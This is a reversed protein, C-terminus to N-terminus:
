RVLYKLRNLSGDLQNAQWVFSSHWNLMTEQILRLLHYALFLIEDLFSIELARSQPRRDLQYPLMSYHVYHSMHKFLVHARTYQSVRDNAALVEVMEPTRKSKKFGLSGDPKSVVYAKNQSSHLFKEREQM